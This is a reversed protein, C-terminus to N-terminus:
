SLSQGQLDRKRMDSDLSRSGAQVAECGACGAEPKRMCNRSQSDPGRARGQAVGRRGKRCSLLRGEALAPWHPCSFVSARSISVNEHHARLIVSFMTPANPKPQACFAATWVLRANGGASKRLISGTRSHSFPLRVCGAATAGFACNELFRRAAGPAQRKQMSSRHRHRPISIRPQTV